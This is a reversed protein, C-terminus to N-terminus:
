LYFDCTLRAYEATRGGEKTSLTLETRETAGAGRAYALLARRPQKSSVMRVLCMRRLGFGHRVALAGFVAMADVPVIFSAEGQPACLRDVAEWLDPFSLSAAHRALARGGYPSLTQEQFFPPNCLIRDFPVDVQFTRVDAEMVEVRCSWPSQMVNLRADELADRNVDIATVHAVANRQAVMLTVLGTGTGVDLIRSAGDVGAWAGLLVGDTGVKHPSRAQLVSFFRFNFREKM